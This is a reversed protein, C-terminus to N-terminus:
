HVNETEFLIEDILKNNVMMTVNFSDYEKEKDLEEMLLMAILERDDAGGPERFDIFGTLQRNSIDVTATGIPLGGRSQQYIEYTLVDGDDRVLVISYDDRDGSVATRKEEEELLDNRKLEVTDILEDGFVMALSFTEIDDADFDNVILETAEDIEEDLPDYVWEVTGSVHGRRITLFAEAALDKEEDYIHYEVRGREEHVIVLEYDPLSRSVEDGDLSTGGHDMEIDEQQYPNVDNLKDEDLWDIDFDDDPKVIIREYPAYTVIVDCADVGLAEATAEVHRQVRELVETKTREDLEDAELQVAGTLRDNERYVLAMMGVYRDDYVIDHTEGGSTKMDPRLLWEAM